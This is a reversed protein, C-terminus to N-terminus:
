AMEGKKGPRNYYYIYKKREWKIIIINIYLVRILIPSTPPLPPPLCPERYTVSSVRVTMYDRTLFFRGDHSFKVDSISTLIETFFTKEDEQPAEYVACSILSLPILNCMHHLIKRERCYFPFYTLWETRYSPKSKAHADCLASARMDGLRVNGKSSSYLFM